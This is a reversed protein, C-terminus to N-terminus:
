RRVMRGVVFGTAVAIGLAPLPNARVWTRADELRLLAQDRWHAADAFLPSSPDDGEEYDTTPEHLPTSDPQAVRM